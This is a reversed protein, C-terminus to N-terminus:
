SIEVKGKERRGWSGIARESYCFRKQHGVVKTTNVSLESVINLNYM